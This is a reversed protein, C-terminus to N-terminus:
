ELVYEVREGFKVDPKMIWIWKDDSIWVRRSGLRDMLRKVKHLVKNFFNDRDYIVVSDEVMDLYIPRFVSAEEKSLPYFEIFTNYGKKVMEKFAETEYLKLMAKALLSCREHFEMDTDLILLVDNDSEPRDNGRAVSGYIAFSILSDDFIKKIISFATRLYERRIPNRISDFPDHHM